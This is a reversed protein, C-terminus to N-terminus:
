SAERAERRRILAANKQTMMLEGKQNLVEFLFDVIGIAPRSRSVRATLTTRRVRLRDNPRV